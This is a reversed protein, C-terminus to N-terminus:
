PCPGQDDSTLLLLPRETRMEASSSMAVGGLPANLIGTLSQYTKSMTVTVSEPSAPDFSSDMTNSLSIDVIAGSGSLAARNCTEARIAAGSGYDVVALRAGERAANRLEVSQSFFWGAEMIGFILLLFLPLIVAFEVLSAGRENRRLSQLRTRNM